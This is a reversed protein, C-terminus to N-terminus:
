ENAGRQRYNSIYKWGDPLMIWVRAEKAPGLWSRRPTQVPALCQWLKLHSGGDSTDFPIM